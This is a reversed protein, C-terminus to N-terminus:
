ALCPEGARVHVEFPLLCQGSNANLPTIAGPRQRRHVEFRFAEVIRDVYRGDPTMSSLTALYEGPMVYLPDFVFEVAGNETLRGTRPTTTWNSSATTVRAGYVSDLGCAFFLDQVPQRIDFEARIVCRRGWEATSAYDGHPGVVGGRTFRLEGSGVRDATNLDAGSVITCATRAYAEIVAESDGFQEVRGNRLWLVKPCLTRVSALNHSVYLVTRGEDRGFSGMRQLCRKQFQIDGVALVEDVLMIDNVLHAAVAFALRVQMGSSYHKIPTDIFEEVEAFAVIEDFKRRIEARTMGLLAGNLFVNERGTLDPHFGTGVELLSSVRGRMRARGTTPHVIGSLIKLLTSKGAGNRGIVGLCEGPCIEFSVDRLAWLDHSRQARWPLRSRWGDHRGRVPPIRYRKGLGQVTIAAAM